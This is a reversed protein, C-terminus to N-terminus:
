NFKDLERDENDLDNIIKNTSQYEDKKDKLAQLEMKNSRFCGNRIKMYCYVVFLPVPTIISGCVPIVAAMDSVPQSLSYSLLVFAIGTNQIGTEISVAVVDAFSFRFAWSVLIGAIFGTWVSLSAAAIMPWSLMYFIYTNAVSAMVIIGILLIICVPALIRKSRAAVKPLFRQILLGIGIPIVLSILSIMINSYPIVIDTDKLITHGLTFLWLPITGAFSSFISFFVTLVMIMCVNTLYM